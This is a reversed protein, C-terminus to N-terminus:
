DHDAGLERLADKFSAGTLLRHLAIIDGGKAGCAM